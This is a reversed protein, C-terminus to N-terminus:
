KEKVEKQMVEVLRVILDKIMEMMKKKSEEMLKVILDEIMM